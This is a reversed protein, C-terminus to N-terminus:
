GIGGRRGRAPHANLNILDDLQIAASRITQYFERLEDIQEVVSPRYWTHFAPDVQGTTPNCIYRTFFTGMDTLLPLAGALFHHIVGSDIVETNVWAGVMPNTIDNSPHVNPMLDQALLAYERAEPRLRQIDRIMKIDVFLIIVCVHSFGGTVCRM